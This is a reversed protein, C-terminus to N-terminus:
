DPQRLLLPATFSEADPAPLWVDLFGVGTQCKRSQACMGPALPSLSVFLSNTQLSAEQWVSLQTATPSSCLLLFVVPQLEHVLFSPGNDTLDTGASRSRSGPATSNQVVAQSLGVSTIQEHLTSGSRFWFNGKYQNEDAISVKIPRSGTVKTRSTTVLSTLNYMQFPATSSAGRPLSPLATGVGPSEGPHHLVGLDPNLM